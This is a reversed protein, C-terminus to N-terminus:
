EHLKQKVRERAEFSLNQPPACSDQEASQQAATRLFALQEGYRRCWKCLLLHVRLGIRRFLPLKRDLAESQLRAVEKCSPSLANVAKALPTLLSEHPKM